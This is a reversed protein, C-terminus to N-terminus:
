YREEPCLQGSIILVRQLLETFKNIINCLRLMVAARNGDKCAWYLISWTFLV